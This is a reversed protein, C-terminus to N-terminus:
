VTHQDPPRCLPAIGLAGTDSVYRISDDRARSTDNGTMGRRRREMAGNSKMKKRTWVGNTVTM